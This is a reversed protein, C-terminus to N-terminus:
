SQLMEAISDTLMRKRAAARVDEVQIEVYRCAYQNPLHKDRGTPRFCVVYHTEDDNLFMEAVFCRYRSRAYRDLLKFCRTEEPTM